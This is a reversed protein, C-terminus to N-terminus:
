HLPSGPHKNGASAAPSCLPWAAPVILGLRAWKEDRYRWVGGVKEFVGEVGGGCLDAAGEGFKQDTVKRILENGYGELVM